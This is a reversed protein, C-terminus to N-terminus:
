DLAHDYDSSLWGREELSVFNLISISLTFSYTLGDEIKKDKEQAFNQMIGGDKTKNPDFKGLM